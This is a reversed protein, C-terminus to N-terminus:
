KIRKSCFNSLMLQSQMTQVRLSLNLTSKHVIEQQLRMALLVLFSSIVIWTLFKTKRLLIAMLIIRLQNNEVKVNEVPLLNGDVNVVVELDKEPMMVLYNMGKVTQIIENIKM